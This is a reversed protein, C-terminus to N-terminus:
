KSGFAKGAKRRIVEGEYKIGKGKYPEPPKVARIESAFQGVQQKDIGSVTVHTPDNVVVSVGAPAKLVVQNAFGVQLGITNAGKLQAQYGVGVIELKRVYGDTVGKVMNALIARTSGHLARSPGEDNSRDIKLQRAAEDYKVSVQPKFPFSLEGKPGAIKVTLDQVSVSVNAPVAVPLRGIRSM